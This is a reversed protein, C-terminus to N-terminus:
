YYSSGILYYDKKKKEKKKKKEAKSGLRENNGVVRIKGGGAGPMCRNMTGEFVLEVLLTLPM